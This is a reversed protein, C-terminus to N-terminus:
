AVHRWIKGSRVNKVTTACVNLRRAIKRSAEASSRIERVLSEDLKSNGNDVGRPTKEPKTHKGNRLGRATRHPMTRSGHTAGRAMTGHVHKDRINEIHTSWRLNSASNNLRDNSPFHRAETGEPRPGSFAGLVLHAVSTIRGKISTKRYGHQDTWQSLLAPYAAMRKGGSGRLLWGRVRGLSSVEYGPFGAVPRWEEM